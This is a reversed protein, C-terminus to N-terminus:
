VAVIRLQISIVDFILHMGLFEFFRTSGYIVGWRTRDLDFHAEAMLEGEPGPTLTAMFNQDAKVGKLELEGSIELNQVSLFPKIVSKGEKITFVAKPFRSTWFFDDSKLHADLVPQLEDGELSKNAISTMDLEFRGTLLGDKIELTGSSIALTGYHTMNPNRGSWELTSQSTDVTYSGDSLDLCSQGEPPQDASPGELTYGAKQWAEMGGDLLYVNEYGAGTLKEFAVMTDQSRVSSGYVVITQNHDPVIEKIQDLFSVEFVCAQQSKPLHAQEFHGEPLVHILYFSRGQKAWEDLQVPSLKKDTISPEM